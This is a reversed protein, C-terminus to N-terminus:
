AVTLMYMVFSIGWLSILMYGTDILVLLPSKHSYMHVQAIPLATFPLWLITAIILPYAPHSMDLIQMGRGLVVSLVLGTVISTAMGAIMRKKMAEMPIGDVGALKMWIKGLLPGYWLGGIAMYVAVSALVALPYQYLFTKLALLHVM